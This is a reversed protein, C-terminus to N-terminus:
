GGCGTGPPVLGLPQSLAAHAQSWTLDGVAALRSLVHEERAHAQVPHTRPDDTSPANVVGALMAAQPWTLAAPRVGFYGCSAAELGYYNSGYYAAEAYMRLIQAKSYTMDLKVALAVQELEVGIGQQGPTYLMKALQQEITSGGQNDHGTLKGLAVRVVAIPDIGPTSYYRHDETAVLAETFRPPPQPGPYAIHHESAQVQALAQAQSAPPTALLLLGFGLAAAVALVGTIKVIRPLWRRGRRGRGWQSGPRRGEYRPSVPGRPSPRSAKVQGLGEKM